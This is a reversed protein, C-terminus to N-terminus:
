KVYLEMFRQIIVACEARTATNGPDLLKEQLKGTIIGNGVAWQMADKAFLSVSKADAFKSLDAKRGTDAKLYGAYRYMMVTMEERTAGDAPRFMGSESESVIGHNYAWLVAKTYWEGEEVDRFVPKYEVDPSGEIRYLITVLQARSLSEGPGFTTKDLGTMLGKFYNYSVADYFWAHEEHDAMVDKYPLEPKQIIEEKVTVTCEATYTGESNTVTLLLTATGPKVGKVTVAKTEKGNVIEVSDGDKVSWEYSHNTVGSEMVVKAAFEATEDPVIENKDASIAVSSGSAKTWILMKSSSNQGQVGNDGRNNWAYYPVAQLKAEKMTEGDKYLVDGTIEMVGNLLDNKYEAQLDADRPIVFNLPNFNNIGANLQANGAKEMCYVVPGRELAIRGTNTTVNSNAETKRIEMPMDIKVVDGSKWKRNIAVYGKEAKTTEKKGNVTIVTEKNNQEEVWGPIRINMTFEKEQEPSVTLQVAGDWPYQTEQKLEVNTGDVNVNGTSGVYLNVFVKDGHVTYMYESLKALTRMLNPPCCACAFWDSRPNGNSVELLSNYYFKDGTLNTGALISNYLTREVVDAYKADEHVLNMRQNWNALAISACTECYSGNNPLEYDGGFDEGHSAVGIGGTIYTKRNAVSDWIRDMTNLYAERDPDDKPLLTALDTVGAYFYCARVAHGVGNTEEKIPRADQSYDNGKYGSERLSASEGRRDVMLKATDIYKQGAGEGEYEEVLKALKVLALEIEEHGPVEHRTGEPGFLSVIEDAFRKGVVYLSYDPDGIGERYRTYAVVGEFFHGANYMEHNAFSRWRHTGQATGGATTRARLTFHTNIYGDAYQVQEIMSIWEALKAELKERQAALEPDTDEHIVSLTYSIAEISKYIDSDQFVYGQFDNYPEGNLKKIANKFNPEGGSPKAIQELAANLSNVANVKQKPNWFGDTLQVNEFTVTSNAVPAVVNANVKVKATAEFKEGNSEVTGKVEFTTGAKDAAYLSPDVTEWTVPVLKSNFTEGFDFDPKTSSKLSPTAEDFTLGNAVVTKPLIPAKGAATATVYEDISAIGDVKINFSTTRTVTQGGEKHSVSLQLVGTGIAKAQLKVSEKNADGIIAISNESGEAVSWAYSLDSLGQPLGDAFYSPETGKQITSNGTIQAAVLENWEATMKEGFVEWEGIGIGNSGSGNRDVTLRLKTTKVPENFTVTNWYRNNGNLYSAPTDSAKGDSGYKVGVSSVAEGNEDTMNKIEVWTDTSHDYYEAKCNKPFTVNGSAALTGNDAWWMVRTGKIEYPVDWTLMVSLPYNESSNWTNWSTSAGSALAGNNVNAVPTNASNASAKATRAINEMTELSSDIKEGFVELEGIGIGNSGSGNRNVLLRLQKTRIPTKLSVGNWYRNNGNTYGEPTASAEEESGYKVGVSETDAGTEDILDTIDVWQKSRSNYYQLECSKPFTVNGNATLTGNDAWWMVRLSSIEYEDKWTLTLPTPYELDGSSKWTNWTTSSDSALRGDNVNAAATGNNVYDAEAVAAPAINEGTGVPAVGFVEWESIGIGNTASGNRDVLLRLSKTRIKRSFNVYNWYQNNGNIGNNSSTDVKVGVEDVTQANEDTMGTITQWEGNENQYQVKCSKPFTVNDNKNLTANDAWWIVRMGSLDYEHDWTLAIPLPYTNSGTNGWTNWTTAPSGDALKGDNVRSPSVNGNPNTYLAEAVAKPAINSETGAAREKIKADAEVTDAEREPAGYVVNGSFMSVAMTLSLLMAIIRKKM